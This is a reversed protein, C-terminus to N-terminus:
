LKLIFFPMLLKNCQLAVLGWGGLNRQVQNCQMTNVNEGQKNIKALINRELEEMVNLEKAQSSLEQEIIVNLL